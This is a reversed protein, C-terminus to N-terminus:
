HKDKLIDRADPASPHRLCLNNIWRHVNTRRWESSYLSSPLIYLLFSTWQPTFSIWYSVILFHRLWSDELNRCDFIFSSILLPLSFLQPVLTIVAGVVFEKNEGLVEVILRSRGRFNTWTSQSVQDALSLGFTNSSHHSIFHKSEHTKIKQNIVVFTIIFTSSLNILFSLFSHLILFLLHFGMWLSRDRTSTELVCFSGQGDVQTSFSKYSFLEYLDTIFVAFFIALIFRRAIRPQKLWQGRVSLTTYLREIYPHVLELELESWNRFNTSNTPIPIPADRTRHLDSINVLLCSSEVLFSSLQDARVSIFTNWHHECDSSRSSRSVTSQRRDDRSSLTCCWLSSM